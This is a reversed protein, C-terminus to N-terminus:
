LAKCGEGVVSIQASNLRPPAHADAFASTTWGRAARVKVNHKSSFFTDLEAESIDFKRLVDSRLQLRCRPERCLDPSLSSSFIVEGLEVYM